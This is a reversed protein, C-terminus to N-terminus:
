YKCCRQPSMKGTFYFDVYAKNFRDHIDYKINTITLYLPWAHLDDAINTLNTMDFEVNVAVIM